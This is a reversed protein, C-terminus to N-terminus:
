IIKRKNTDRGPGMGCSSKNVASEVRQTNMMMTSILTLRRCTAASNRCNHVVYVHLYSTVIVDRQSQCIATVDCLHRCMAYDGDQNFDYHMHMHMHMCAHPVSIGAILYLTSFM